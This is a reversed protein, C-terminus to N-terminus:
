FKIHFKLVFKPKYKLHFKLACHLGPRFYIKLAISLNLRVHKVEGRLIILSQHLTTLQIDWDDVRETTALPAHAHISVYIGYM